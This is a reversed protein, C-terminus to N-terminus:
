HNKFYPLYHELREAIMKSVGDSTITGGSIADVGHPDDSKAGGKVTKVSIFNDKVFAKELSKLLKKGKFQKQFWATTIEAGLGPTEGKHDFNAGIITNKDQELALYGWIADWLGAGYLPIIYYKKSKKEAVYLPFRQKNVEKKIEKKLNIDFAAIKEDVSGDSKLAFQKKIYKKFAANAKERSVNIGITALIKQMKEAKVNELQMPKLGTAALSLLGSIICVMVIAFIFTYLNSNKNM